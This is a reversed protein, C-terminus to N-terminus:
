TTSGDDAAPAAARAARLADGGRELYTKLARLSSRWGPTIVSYYRRWRDGEGIGRQAVHLRTSRGEATCTVDLAMPGIPDGEPPLWFADGLVFELGAHYDIVTGHFVGGLPGLVEDRFPTPEWEIAYVGLPRPTTVSRVAQWWLALAIPDFFAALVRAPSAAIQLTHEFSLAHRGPM